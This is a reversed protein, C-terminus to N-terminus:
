GGGAVKFMSVREVRCVNNGEELKKACAVRRQINQARYGGGAVRFM